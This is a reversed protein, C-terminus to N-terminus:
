SAKEITSRSPDPGNVEVITSRFPDPGNMEVITSRTPDPGIHFIPPFPLEGDLLGSDLLLSDLM